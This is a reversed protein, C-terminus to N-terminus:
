SSGITSGSGPYSPSTHEYLKNRYMERDSTVHFGETTDAHLSDSYQGVDSSNMRGTIWPLSRTSHNTCNLSSIWHSTSSRSVPALRARTIQLAPSTAAIGASM